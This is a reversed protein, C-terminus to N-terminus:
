ESLPVNTIPLSARTIIKLVHLGPNHHKRSTAQTSKPTFRNDPKRAGNLGRRDWHRFLPAAHKGFPLGGRYGPSYLGPFHPSLNLIILASDTM